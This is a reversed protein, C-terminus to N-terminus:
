HNPRGGGQPPPTWGFVLWDIFFGTVWDSDPWQSLQTTPHPQLIQPRYFLDTRFQLDVRYLFPNVVDHVFTLRFQADM